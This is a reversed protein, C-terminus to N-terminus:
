LRIPRQCDQYSPTSPSNLFIRTFAAIQNSREFLAPPPTPSTQVCSLECTSTNLPSVSFFIRAPYSLTDHRGWAPHSKVLLINVIALRDLLDKVQPVLIGDTCHWFQPKVTCTGAPPRRSHPQPEQNDLSSGWATAM